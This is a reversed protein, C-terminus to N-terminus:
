DMLPLSAYYADVEAKSVRARVTDLNIKEVWSGINRRADEVAELWTRGYGCNIGGNVFNFSWLVAESYREQIPCLAHLGTQRPDSYVPVTDLNPFQHAGRLTKYVKADGLNRRFSGCADHRDSHGKGLYPFSSQQRSKCVYGFIKNKM